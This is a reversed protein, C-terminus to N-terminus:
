AVPQEVDMAITGVGAMTGEQRLKTKTTVGNAKAKEAAEADAKVKAAKKHRKLYWVGGVIAALAIFFWLSIDYKFIRMSPMKM